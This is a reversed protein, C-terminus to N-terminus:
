QFDPDDDEHTNIIEYFRERLFKAVTLFPNHVPWGTTDEPSTFKRYRADGMAERTVAQMCVYIACAELAWEPVYVKSDERNEVRPFYANYVYLWEPPPAQLGNLVLKDEYIYYGIVQAMFAQEIALRELPQPVGQVFVQVPQYHYEPLAVKLGDDAKYVQHKRLPKQTALRAQANNWWNVVDEPSYRRPRNSGEAVEDKLLTLVSPEIDKWLFM